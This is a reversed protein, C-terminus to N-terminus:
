KIFNHANLLYNLGVLTVINVSERLFSVILQHLVRRFMCSSDAHRM